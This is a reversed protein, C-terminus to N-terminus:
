KKWINTFQLVVIFAFYLQQFYVEFSTKKLFDLTPFNFLEM